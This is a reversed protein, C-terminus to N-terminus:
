KVLYRYVIYEPTYTGPLYPIQLATLFIIGVIFAGGAAAMSGTIGLAASFAFMCINAIDVSNSIFIDKKYICSIIFPPLSVNALLAIATYWLSITLDMGTYIASLDQLFAYAYAFSLLVFLLGALGRRGNHLMMAFFKALYSGVRLVLFFFILSVLSSIVLRAAESYHGTLLAWIIAIPFSVMIFFTVLSNILSFM